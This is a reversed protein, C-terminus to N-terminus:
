QDKLIRAEIRLERSASCKLAYQQAVRFRQDRLYRQRGRAVPHV